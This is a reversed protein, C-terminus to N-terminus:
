GRPLRAPLPHLVGLAAPTALDASWIYDAPADALPNATVETTWGHSAGLAWEVLILHTEYGALKADEFKARNSELADHLQVAQRDQTWAMLDGTIPILQFPQDDLGLYSLTYGGGTMGGAIDVQGRNRAVEAALAALQDFDIAKVTGKGPTVSGILRVFGRLDPAAARIKRSAKECQEEVAAEKAVEPWEMAQTVEVATWRDRGRRRFAADFTHGQHEGQDRGNVEVASTVDGLETILLEIAAAEDPRFGPKGDWRFTV